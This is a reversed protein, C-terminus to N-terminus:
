SQSAAADPFCPIIQEVLQVYSAKKGSQSHLTNDTKLALGGASWASSSGLKLSCLQSNVNVHVLTVYSYLDITYYNCTYHVQAHVSIKIICYSTYYFHKGKLSM